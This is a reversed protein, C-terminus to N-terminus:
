GVSVSSGALKVFNRYLQLGKSQSKEPHFQTAFVRGRSIASTFPYGYHARAWIISEDPTDIHYSHVFYFQDSGSVLGENMIADEKIFEVTNWGMHPVKLDKPVRFKVVNGPFIGLGEIGAEESYEFLAQMGLCVGLFPKDAAIWSSVLNDLGTDRLAKICDRLAGVGPLLLGDAEGIQDPSSIVRFNAGVFTLANTVSRINGMGYDIVAIDTTRM